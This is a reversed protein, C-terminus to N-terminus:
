RLALNLCSPDSTDSIHGRVRCTEHGLHINPSPTCSLHGVSPRSLSCHLARQGPDQSIRSVNLSKNTDNMGRGIIIGDHVFVCGVPTEDSALALEAQGYSLIRLKSADHKHKLTVMNIAERMFREHELMVGSVIGAM